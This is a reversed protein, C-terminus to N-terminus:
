RDLSFQLPAVNRQIREFREKRWQALDAKILAQEARYETLQKQSASRLAGDGAPTLYSCLVLRPLTIHGHCPTKCYVQEHLERVTQIQIALMQSRLALKELSHVVSQPLVAQFCTGRNDLEADGSHERAAALSAVGSIIPEIGPTVEASKFGQAAIPSVLTNSGLIPEWLGCATCCRGAVSGQFRSSHDNYLEARFSKFNSAKVAPPSPRLLRGLKDHLARYARETSRRQLRRLQTRSVLTAMAEPAAAM